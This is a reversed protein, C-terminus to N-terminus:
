AIDTTADVVGIVAKVNYNRSIEYAYTNASHHRLAAFYKESSSSQMM